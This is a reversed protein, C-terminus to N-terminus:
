HGRIDLEAFPMVGEGWSYVMYYQMEEKEDISFIIDTENLSLSTKQELIYEDEHAGYQKYHTEFAEVTSPYDLVSSIPVAVAVAVLILIISDLLFASLRKFFSAKQIDIVM